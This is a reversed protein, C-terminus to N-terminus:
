FPPLQFRVVGVFGIFQIWDGRRRADHRLHSRTAAADLDFQMANSLPPAAIVQGSGTKSIKWRFYGNPITAHELPTAGLRYWPGGPLVYDQIEVTAGAPESNVTVSQTSDEEIQRLHPDDPLYHRAQRM